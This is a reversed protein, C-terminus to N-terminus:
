VTLYDVTVGISAVCRLSITPMTMAVRHRQGDRDSKALPPRRIAV